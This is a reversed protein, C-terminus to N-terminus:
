SIQTFNKRSVHVQGSELLDVVLLILGFIEHTSLRKLFHLYSAIKVYLQVHAIAALFVKSYDGGKTIM